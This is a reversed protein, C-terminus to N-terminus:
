AASFQAGCREGRSPQGPPDPATTGGSTFAIEKSTAYQIAMFNEEVTSGDGLSLDLLIVDFSHPSDALSRPSTTSALVRTDNQTRLMMAAEHAIAVHGDAAGVKIMTGGFRSRM